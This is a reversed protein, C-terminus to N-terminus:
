IARLIIHGLHSVKRDAIITAGRTQSTRRELYALMIRRLMGSECVSPLLNLTNM